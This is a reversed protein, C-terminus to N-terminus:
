VRKDWVLSRRKATMTEGAEGCKIDAASLTMKAASPPPDRQQELGLGETQGYSPDVREPMRHVGQESYGSFRVTGLVETPLERAKTGDDKERTVTHGGYESRKRGQKWSRRLM